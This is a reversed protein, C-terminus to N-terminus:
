RTPTVYYHRKQEALFRGALAQVGEHFSVVVEPLARAM